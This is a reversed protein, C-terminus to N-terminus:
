EGVDCCKKRRGEFSKQSVMVVGSGSSVIMFIRGIVHKGESELVAVKM